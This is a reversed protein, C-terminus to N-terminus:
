KSIAQEIDDAVSTYIKHHYTGNQRDAAAAVCANRMYGRRLECLSNHQRELELTHEEIESARVAWAILDWILLELAIFAMIYTSPTINESVVRYGSLFSVALIAIITFVVSLSLLGQLSQDANMEKFTKFRKSTTVEPM